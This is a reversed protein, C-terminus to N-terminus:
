FGSWSLQKTKQSNVALVDNNAM